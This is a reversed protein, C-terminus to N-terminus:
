MFMSIFSGVQDTIENNQYRILLDELVAFLSASVLVDRNVYGYYDASYRERLQKMM